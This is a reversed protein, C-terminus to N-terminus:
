ATAMQRRPGTRKTRYESPTLGTQRRFASTLTQAKAYGLSVAISLISDETAELRNAARQVRIGDALERYTRGEANLRRQLTRSSMGLLQGCQVLSLSPDKTLAHTVRVHSPQGQRGIAVRRAVESLLTEACRTDAVRSMAELGCTHSTMGWYSGMMRVYGTAMVIGAGTTGRAIATASVKPILRDILPAVRCTFETVVHAELSTIARADVFSVIPTADPAAEAKLIRLIFRADNLDPTGWLALCRIGADPRWCMVHRSFCTRGVPDALYSDLSDVAPEPTQASTRLLYM